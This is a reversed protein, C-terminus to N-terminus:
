RADKSSTESEADRYQKKFGSMDKLGHDKLLKAMEEQLVALKAKLLRNTAESGIADAGAIEALTGDAASWTPGFATSEQARVAGSARRRRGTGAIVGFGAIDDPVPGVAVKGARAGANSGGVAPRRVSVAPGGSVSPARNISASAMYAQERQLIDKSISFGSDNWADDGDSGDAAENGDSASELRGHAAGAASTFESDNLDIQGM